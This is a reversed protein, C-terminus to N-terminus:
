ITMEGKNNQQNRDNEYAVIELYDGERGKLKKTNSHQKCTFKSPWNMEM